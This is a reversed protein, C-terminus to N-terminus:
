GSGLPDWKLRPFCLPVCCRVREALTGLEDEESDDLGLDDLEDDSEVWSKKINSPGMLVQFVDDIECCDHLCDAVSHCLALEVRYVARCPVSEMWCM